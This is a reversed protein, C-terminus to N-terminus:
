WIRQRLMLPDRRKSASPRCPMLYGHRSTCHHKVRKALHCAEQMRVDTEVGKGRIPAINIGIRLMKGASALVLKSMQAERLCRPVM